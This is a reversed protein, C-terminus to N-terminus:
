VYSVMLSNALSFKRFVTSIVEMHKKIFLACFCLILNNRGNLVNRRPVLSGIEIFNPQQLGWYALGLPLRLTPVEPCKV